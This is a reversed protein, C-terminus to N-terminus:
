ELDPLLSDDDEISALEEVPVEYCDEKAMPHEAIEPPRVAMTHRNYYRDIAEKDSISVSVEVSTHADIKVIKTKQSLKRKMQKKAECRRM